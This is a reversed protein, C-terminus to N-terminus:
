TSLAAQNQRERAQRALTLIDICFRGCAGDFGIAPESSAVSAALYRRGKAIVHDCLQEVLAGIAVNRAGVRDRDRDGPLERFGIKVAPLSATYYLRIRNVPVGLREAVIAAFYSAAYSRMDNRLGLMLTATGDAEFRIACTGRDPLLRDPIPLEVDLGRAACQPPESPTVVPRLM